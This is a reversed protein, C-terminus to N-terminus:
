SCDQPLFFIKTCASNFCKKVLICRLTQTLKFIAQNGELSNMQTLAYTDQMECEDGIEEWSALFNTKHVRSVHDAVLVDVDELQPTPPSFICTFLPRFNVCTRLLKGSPPSPPPPLPLSMSFVHLTINPCLILRVKGLQKVRCEQMLGKLVFIM